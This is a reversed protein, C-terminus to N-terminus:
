ETRLSNVPNIMASKVAQFSLTFFTILFALVGAGIFPWLSLQVRYAFNQLWHQVLYYSLPVAVVYSIAVLTLFGWSLLNWIHIASAGLVKRVGIEKKRQEGIFSILGFLGLCSILIALGAFVGALKGVREESQFKKAYAEDVFEFEFPEETNFKRFVPEIRSIEQKPSLGPNLRIIVVGGVDNSLAYIIPKAQDYPSEMVMDSIVGIVKLPQDFWSVKMGVIHKIGMLRVAAENLILASTDTTFDRSFDRGEKIQWGITKGYDLSAPVQGFDISLNPDKGPWSLGSTSSWVATTPSGAEAISSVAGTQMLEDKVASFHDHISANSVPITILNAPSYGVPRDKAFQIQRYIIFTGIMLSITVMFQLVVMLKRPIAAHRGAKFTGKLVKVPMFSSLYFAPYSGAVLATILVFVVSTLLFFHNQWIDPIQKNLLQNFFPLTLQVLLVATAFAFLVTLLSEALFQFILQNHRSGLTKRIGVERARRESQATSLNMFNICALLLVFVGIIGFMWVYQIAGGVNVGNRFESYLHWQSMPFLFLEPKKKRLQENVKNFKADKIRANVKQIDANDQLQVYINTFNPRWPDVITKLWTTREFLFDWPAIFNLGSFTSNRPFDKYVGTVKLPPLQDVQTIQNLVNGNGFYTTAASSSILISSPDYLSKRNGLVMDLTFLEPMEKEFFGGSQKMKRGAINLIHDGTNVALVIHKFDSGYHTRLENALPYPLTKWTQVEGNNTANQVVQAIHGYNSFNRNFSLEDHVWLGILMAVAMGASLGVINIISHMRSRGLNRWATKFYNKLM